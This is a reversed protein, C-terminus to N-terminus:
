HYEGTVIETLTQLALSLNIDRSIEKSWRLISALDSSTLQTVLDEDTSASPNGQM